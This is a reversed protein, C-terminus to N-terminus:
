RRTEGLTTVLDHGTYVTGGGRARLNCAASSPMVACRWPGVMLDVEDDHAFVPADERYLTLPPRSRRRRRRQARIDSLTSLLPSWPRRSRERAGDVAALPGGGPAYELFPLTSRGARTRHRTRSGTRGARRLATGCARGQRCRAASPPSGRRDRFRRSWRAPFRHRPPRAVGRAGAGRRPVRWSGQARRRKRRPRSRARTRPRRSRGCRVAPAPCQPWGPAPRAPRRRGAAGPRTSSCSCRRRRGTKTGGKDVVVRAGRDGNRTAPLNGRVVQRPIDFRRVLPKLSAHHGVDSAGGNGSTSRWRCALSTFQERGGLPVGRGTRSRTRSRLTVEVVDM